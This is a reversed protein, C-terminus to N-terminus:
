RRRIKSHRAETPTSASRNRSTEISNLGSDVFSHATSDASDSPTFRMLKPRCVKSASRSLSTPREWETSDPSSAKRRNVDTGSKEIEVNLELDM